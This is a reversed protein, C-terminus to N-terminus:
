GSGREDAARSDCYRASRLIYLPISFHAHYSDIGGVPANPIVRLCHRDTGSTNPHSQFVTFYRNSTDCSLSSRRINRVQMKGDSIGGLIYASVHVIFVIFDFYWAGWTSMDAWGFSRLAMTDFQSLFCTFQILSHTKLPKFPLMGSVPRSVRLSRFWFNARRLIKSM